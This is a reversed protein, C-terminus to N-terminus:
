TATQLIAQEQKNWVVNDLSYSTPGNLFLALAILLYAFSIEAQYDGFVDGGMAFFTAVMMNIILFLSAPRTLLGLLLLIGCFLEAGKSLYAMFEPMPISISEMFAAFGAMYDPSFIGPLGHMIFAIGLWIRLIVLADKFYSRHIFNQFNM